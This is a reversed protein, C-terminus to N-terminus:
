QVGEGVGWRGGGEEVVAVGGGGRLFFFDRSKSEKDFNM